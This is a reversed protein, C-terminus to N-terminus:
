VCCNDSGRMQVMSDAFPLRREGRQIESVVRIMGMSIYAYAIRYWLPPQKPGHEVAQEYIADVGFLPGVFVHALMFLVGAGFCQLVRPFRSPGDPPPHRRQQATLYERIEFAPGVLLTSPNFIYGLYELLNPLHDISRALRDKAVSRAGPSANLDRAVAELRQREVTGDYLNYALSYLKVTLMMHVVSDDVNSATVGLRTLHRITLSAFAVIASLWHRWGDLSRIPLTLAQIAYCVLAVAAAHLYRVGFVYQYVFIGSLLAYLHRPVGRPLWTNLAAIPFALYLAIALRVVEADLGTAQM